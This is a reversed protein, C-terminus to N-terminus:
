VTHSVSLVFSSGSHTTLSAPTSMWFLSSLPEAWLFHQPSNNLAEVQNLKGGRLFHFGDNLSPIDTPTWFYFQVRYVLSFRWKRNLSIM